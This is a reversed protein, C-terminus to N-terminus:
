YRPKIGYKEIIDPMMADEVHIWLFYDIGTMTRFAIEFHKREFELFHGRDIVVFHAKSTFKGMIEDFTINIRQRAPSESCDLKDVWWEYCVLKCDNILSVKQNLSLESTDYFTDMQRTSVPFCEADISTM